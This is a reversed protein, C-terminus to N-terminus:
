RLIPGGKELPSFGDMASSPQAENRSEVEGAEDEKALGAHLPRILSALPLLFLFFM